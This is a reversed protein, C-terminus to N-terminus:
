GNLETMIHQLCENVDDFDRDPALVNGSEDETDVILVTPVYDVGSHASIADWDEKNEDIDKIRHEIGNQDLLNKLEECYSCGEQSYIITKKM